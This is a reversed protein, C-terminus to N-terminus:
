LFGQGVHATRMLAFGKFVGLNVETALSGVLQRGFAEDPGLSERPSENIVEFTDMVVGRVNHDFSHTDILVILKKSVEDRLQPDSHFGVRAAGANTADPVAEEGDLMSEEELVDAKLINNFVDNVQFFNNVSM